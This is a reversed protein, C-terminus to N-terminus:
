IDLLLESFITSYTYASELGPKIELLRFPDTIDGSFLARHTQVGISSGPLHVETTMWTPEFVKAFAIQRILLGM